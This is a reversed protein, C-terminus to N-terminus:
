ILKESLYSVIENELFVASACIFDNEHQQQVDFDYWFQEVWEEKIIFVNDDYASFVALSVKWVYHIPFNIQFLSM